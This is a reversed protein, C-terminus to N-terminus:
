STTLTCTVFVGVPAIEQMLADIESQSRIGKTGQGLIEEETISTIIPEYVYANDVVSRALLTFEEFDLAEININLVGPAPVEFEVEVDPGFVARFVDLYFEFTGPRTFLDHIAFFSTRFVGRSIVGAMPDRALDYLLDGLLYCIWAGAYFADTQGNIPGQAVDFAAIVKPEIEDNPRFRQTM